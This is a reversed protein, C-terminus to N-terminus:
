LLTGCVRSCPSRQYRVPGVPGTGSATGRCPRTRGVRGAGLVSGRFLVHPPAWDNRLYAHSTRAENKRYIMHLHRPVWLSASSERARSRCATFVCTLTERIPTALSSLAPRSSGGGDRQGAVHAPLSTMDVEDGSKVVEKVPGDDVMVTKRLNKARRSFEKIMGELPVDFALAAHKLNAPAM